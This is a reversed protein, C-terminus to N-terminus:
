GSAAVQGIEKGFGEGKATIEAFHALSQASGFKADTGIQEKTLVGM